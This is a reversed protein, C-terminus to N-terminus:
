GSTKKQFAYARALQEIDAEACRAEDFEVVLGTLRVYATGQPGTWSTATATCRGGRAQVQLEFNSYDAVSLEHDALEVTKM